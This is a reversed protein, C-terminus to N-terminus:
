AETVLRYRALEPGGGFSRIIITDPLVVWTADGVVRWLECAYEAPDPDTQIAIYATAPTVTPGPM